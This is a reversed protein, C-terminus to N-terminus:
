NREHRLIGRRKLKREIYDGIAEKKVTYPVPILRVGHKKCLKSKKADAKKQEALSRRTHFFHHQLYHQEGQYEFAVGLKESYGDLELRGGKKGPLWAPRVRPFPEGLLKQFTERCIKESVGQSNCEPCWTKQQKISLPSSWWVHGNSCKWKLNVHANVYKDSLCEGGMRKALQRMEEITLRESGGCTPCWQGQQISNATTEWVKGCKNCKFKHKGRTDMYIPSLCVGGRQKALEQLWNLNRRKKMARTKMACKPCWTGHNRISLPRAKWVHGCKGCKWKLPTLNNKYTNALCKGGMRKALKQMEPLGMRRKEARRELSCEPCWTGLSKISYPTAEWMHGDRCRWKLKSDIGNYKPSICTGGKKRAM